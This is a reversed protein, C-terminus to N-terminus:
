IITGISQSECTSRLKGKPSVPLRFSALKNNRKVKRKKKEKNM